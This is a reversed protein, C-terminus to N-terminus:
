LHSGTFGFTHRHLPALTAYTPTSSTQAVQKYIKRQAEPGKLGM